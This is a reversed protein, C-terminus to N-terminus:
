IRIIGGVRGTTGIGIISSSNKCNTIQSRVTSTGSSRGIIGGIYDTGTIKAKNECNILNVVTSYGIIGGCYNGTSEVESTNIYENITITASAYGILGGISSNGKVKQNNSSNVITTGTSSEGIIGGVDEGEATITGL